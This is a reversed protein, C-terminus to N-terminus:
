LNRLPVKVKGGPSVVLVKRIGIISSETASSSSVIRIEKDWGVPPAVSPKVFAVTVIMSLSEGLPRSPKEEGSIRCVLIGPGGYNGYIPASSIQSRQRNIIRGTISRCNGASM